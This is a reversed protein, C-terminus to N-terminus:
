QTDHCAGACGTGGCGKSSLVTHRLLELETATARYYLTLPVEADAAKRYLDVIRHDILQVLDEKCKCM